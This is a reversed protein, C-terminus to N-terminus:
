LGSGATLTRRHITGPKKVPASLPRSSRQAIYLLKFPEVRKQVLYVFGLHECGLLEEAVGSAADQKAFFGIAYVLQAGPQAGAVWARIDGVTLHRRDVVLARQAAVESAAILEGSV